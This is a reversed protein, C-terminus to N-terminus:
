PDGALSWRAGESTDEVVVGSQALCDRVADAAGWKKQARLQERLSLLADVLPRLCSERDHPRAAFRTLLSALLERFIERAAGVSDEEELEVMVQWIFREMELLGGAVARDAGDNLATRIAGAMAHLKDWMNKSVQNDGFRSPSRSKSSDRDAVAPDGAAEGRLLSLPVRDGKEFVWERGARRLTVTGVGQVAAYSRAPHVILATHEDLGLLQSGPPMLKELLELRPAGMFCYRTDHNGGEANNWHPLVVLDLGWRKLINLGDVWHLPQGVKYIEYVPLTLRGMTLAAASAAVLCGGKEVHEALLEPVPSRRWQELAYTPSGPGILVYDARRLTEFAQECSLADQDVASRFSAVQLTRNIRQRFYAGAKQAIQDVNLQFGAPTDLFAAQASPGYPRLLSKHLEVMTGTLEGSGMLVITGGTDAM